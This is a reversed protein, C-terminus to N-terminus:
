GAVEVDVRRLRSGRGVSVRGVSVERWTDGDLIRARRPNRARRLADVLAAQQQDTAALALTAHYEATGPPQASVAGAGAGPMAERWQAWGGVAVAASTSGALAYLGISSLGSDTTAGLLMEAEANTNTTWGGSGLDIIAGAKGDTGAVYGTLTAPAGFTAILWALLDAVADDGSVVDVGPLWTQPGGGDDVDIEVAGWDDITDLIMM